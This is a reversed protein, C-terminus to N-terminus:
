SLLKCPMPSSRSAGIIMSSLCLSRSKTGAVAHCGRGQMSQEGKSTRVNMELELHNSALACDHSIALSVRCSQWWTQQGGTDGGRIYVYVCVKQYLKCCAMNSVDMICTTLLLATGLSTPGGGPPGANTCVCIGTTKKVWAPTGPSAASIPALECPRAATQM